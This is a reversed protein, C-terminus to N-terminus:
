ATTGRNWIWNRMWYLFLLELNLVLLSQIVRREAGRDLGVDPAGEDSLILEGSEGDDTARTQGLQAGRACSLKSHPPM